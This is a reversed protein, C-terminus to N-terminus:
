EKEEKLPEIFFGDFSDTKRFFYMETHWDSSGRWPAIRGYERLLRDAKPLDNDLEIRVVISDTDYVYVRTKGACITELKRKIFAANRRLIRSNIDATSWYQPEDSYGPVFGYYNSSM